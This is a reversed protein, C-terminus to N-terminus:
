RLGAAHLAGAYFLVVRLGIILGVLVIALPRLLALARARRLTASGDLSRAEHECAEALRGTREGTALAGAIEAPIRKWGDALPRGAQAAAWAGVLDDAMRGGAGAHMALPISELHDVGADHLWGLARMARADAEEVFARTRLLATWGPARGGRPTTAIARTALHRYLIWGYLPVLVLAAWMLASGVRGVVLDPVPMLVAAFHAVVLPYATAAKRERDRVTAEEARRALDLFTAELTGSAEGARIAAHDLAPVRGALAEALSRGAGLALVSPAFAADGGSAMEVAKPWPVAAAELHAMSRYFADLRPAM